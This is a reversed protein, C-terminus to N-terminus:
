RSWGGGGFPSQNPAQQQPQQPQGFLSPAGTGQGFGGAGAGAGAGAGFGTPQQGAGMGFGGGGGFGQQQQQQQQQAPAGFGTPRPAGGMGFGTPQAPGPGGGGFPSPRSAFSSFGSRQQGPTAGGPPAGAAPPTGFLGAGLGSGARGFQASSTTSALPSQQQQPAGFGGGGGPAAGAGPYEPFYLRREGEPVNYKNFMKFWMEGPKSQYKAWLAPAQAVKSPEYKEYFKRM